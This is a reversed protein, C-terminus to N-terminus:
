IKEVMLHYSPSMFLSKCLVQDVLALVHGPLIRWFVPPLAYGGKLSRVRFNYKKLTEAVQLPTLVDRRRFIRNFYNSPNTEQFVVRGGPKLLMDILRLMKENPKLNNFSFLFNIADFKGLKEWNVKFVDECILSINLKRGSIEEYLKKRKIVLDCVDQRIDCGIVEAGSLAMLILQNGCGFGIELFRLKKRGSDHFYNLTRALNNAFHNLFFSRSGDLFYKGYYNNKDRFLSLDGGTYAAGSTEPLLNAFWKHLDGAKVPYYNEPFVFFDTKASMM